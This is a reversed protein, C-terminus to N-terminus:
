AARKRHFVKGLTRGATTAVRTLITANLRQKRAEMREGLERLKAAGLIRRAKVFMVAEEEEEAHHVILDKLVKVKAGFEPSRPNTGKIESLVMDVVHHEEVAESYMHADASRAAEKFAPYFIEEELRTHTKIEKQIESFLKRREDIAEAGTRELQGILRKVGAHDKKLMSIADEGTTTTRRSSTNVRKTRPPMSIGGM